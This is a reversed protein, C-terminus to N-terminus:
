SFALTMPLILVIALFLNGGAFLSLAFLLGAAIAQVPNGPTFNIILSTLPSVSRVLGTAQRTFMQQSADGVAPGADDPKSM